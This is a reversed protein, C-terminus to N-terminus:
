SGFIRRLFQIRRQMADRAVSSKAALLDFGHIGGDIDNSEVETEKDILAQAYARGQDHLPDFEATEIYAPAVRSVPDRLPSAYRPMGASVAHGLYTEAVGAVSHERFPPVNAYAKMSPRECILDVAPYILLQGRLSVGEEQARQAVGAALGGGASDGGIAVRSRDVGLRESNALTWQFAAYCDNFGAPFPHQPALRYEVFVVLCRAERAYRVANEFHGPAPKMVFAGGHFYVLAPAPSGLDEPRILWIPVPYGDASAPKARSVIQKFKRRHFANVVSLLTQMAALQWRATPMKFAPVSRLEPHINV